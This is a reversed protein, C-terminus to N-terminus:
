EDRLARRLLFTLLLPWMIWNFISMLAFWDEATFWIEGSGRDSGARDSPELLLPLGLDLWNDNSAVYEDDVVMPVIPVHYRASMWVADWLGWRRDDPTVRGDGPAKDIGTSYDRGPRANELVLRTSDSLEFNAPRSSVFVTSMLFLGLILYFLRIPNRRYQLLFRDAQELPRRNRIFRPLKKRLRRLWPKGPRGARAKPPWSGSTGAAAQRREWCARSEETFLIREADDDRGADRLSVAISKYVERHLSEDNDLFDLYLDVDAAAEADLDEEFNWNRVTLGSLDLPVPFGNVHGDGEVPHPPVRLQGIEALELVVGRSWANRSRADRFSEAALHLEGIRAGRLRLAGPIECYARRARPDAGEQRGACVYTTMCGTVEIRDAVLCGDVGRDADDVDCAQLSLGTLDVYSAKFDHMSLSRMRARYDPAMSGKARVLERAKDRVAVANGHHQAVALPSSILLAGGVRSRDLRVSGSWAHCCGVRLRTLCLEGGVTCDTFAFSKEATVCNDEQWGDPLEDYRKDLWTSFLSGFRCHRFLITGPEELNRRRRIARAAAEPDTAATPVRAALRTLRAYTEVVSDTAYIGSCTVPGLIGIVLSGLTAGNFIIEGFDSDSLDLQAGVHAGAFTTDGEIRSRDTIRVVEKCNLHLLTLGGAVHVASFVVNGAVQFGTFVADAGVEVRTMSLSHCSAGYAYLRNKVRAGHGDDGTEGGGAASPEILIEGRVRAKALDLTGARLGRITLDGRVRTRVLRCDAAAEVSDLRLTGFIRTGGLDISGAPGESGEGGFRCDDFSLDGRLECNHMELGLEFTCDEFVLSTFRAANAVFRGQFRVGRVRLERKFRGDSLSVAEEFALPEDGVAEVKERFAASADTRAEAASM